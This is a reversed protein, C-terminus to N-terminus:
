SCWSKGLARLIIGPSRSQYAWARQADGIQTPLSGLLFRFPNWDTCRPTSFSSYKQMNSDWWMLLLYSDYLLYATRPAGTASVGIMPQSPSPPMLGVAVLVNVQDVTSNTKLPSTAEWWRQSKIISAFSFHCELRSIFDLTIQAFFIIMARVGLSVHVVLTHIKREIRSGSWGWRFHGQRTDRFLVSFFVISEWLISRSKRSKM